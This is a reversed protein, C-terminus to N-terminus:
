ATVERKPCGYVNHAFHPLSSLFNSNWIINHKEEETKDNEWNELFDVAKYTIRKIEFFNTGDHHSCEMYFHGNEDWIKIYDCDKTAKYFMDDWNGFVYGANYQGNWRGVTGMLLFYGRGTFFDTLREHEDEWNLSDGLQVQDWIMSETIEKEDYEELLFARANDYMESVNYNDYIIRQKATRM